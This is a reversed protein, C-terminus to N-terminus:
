RPVPLCFPWIGGNVAAACSPPLHGLSRHRMKGPQHNSKGVACAPTQLCRSLQSRQQAPNEHSSLSTLCGCRVATGPFALTWGKGLTEEEGVAGQEVPCIEAEPFSPSYHVSYSPSPSGVACAATLTQRFGFVKPNTCVVKLM